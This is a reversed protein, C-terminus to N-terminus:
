KEGSDIQPTDGVKDEESLAPLVEVDKLQREIARTRVGTEELTNSATDLHRKVRTLVDGFKGFESKVTALITWVEASRKQIALTRFGMQLSNLLAALTTPGSIVVRYERQIQEALGRRRLVEAYLSESPLYLIAFDTTAPPVIYKTAIDKAQAWVRNELAKGADEIAAADGQDVAAVLRQYDEVPFKADIPLWVPTVGDQGPLRIAFEVKEATKARPAYNTAYQDNTLMQDLLTGLQIEGWTGRTKVNGLVRELNGVSGAIRQMDGLGKHVQELRESVLKFSEGLRRELTSQLQEDVTKRMEELKRENGQQIEGLKAEVAARMKDLQEVVAANGAKLEGKLDARTAANVESSESRLRSLQGEISEGMARMQAAAASHGERIQAAVETRLTSAAQNSDARLAQEARQSEAIGAEFQPRLTEPDIVPTRRRFLGIALAVNATALILVIIILLTNV